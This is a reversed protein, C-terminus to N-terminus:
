LLLCRHSCCEDSSLQGQVNSLYAKLSGGSSEEVEHLKAARMGSGRDKFETNALLICVHSCLLPWFMLLSLGCRKKKHAKEGNEEKIFNLRGSSCITSLGVAHGTM